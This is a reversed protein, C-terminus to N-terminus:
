SKPVKFEVQYTINAYKIDCANMGNNSEITEFLFQDPIALMQCVFFSRSLSAASVSDITDVKRSDKMM